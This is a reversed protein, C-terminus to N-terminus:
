LAKGLRICYGGGYWCTGGRCELGKESGVIWQGATPTEHDGKPWYKEQLWANTSEVVDLWRLVKAKDTVREGGKTMQFESQSLFRGITIHASPVVYRPALMAGADKCANYLDRRLHHFTYSTDLSSHLENVAPLFSLAFASTDYSIMPKVLGVPHLYTYDTIHGLQSALTTVLASVDEDRGSHVIELTTM